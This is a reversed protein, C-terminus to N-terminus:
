KRWFEFDSVKFFDYRYLLTDFDEVVSEHVKITLGHFGSHFAIVDGLLMSALGELRHDPHVYLCKIKHGDVICVAKKDAHYIQCSSYASELWQYFNPYLGTLPELLKKLEILNM